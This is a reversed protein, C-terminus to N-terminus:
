YIFDTCTQVEQKRKPDLFSLDLETPGISRQGSYTEARRPLLINGGSKVSASEQIPPELGRVELIDELSAIGNTQTSDDVKNSGVRNITLTGNSSIGRSIPSHMPRIRHRQISAPTATQSSSRLSGPYIEAKFGPLRPPPLPTGSYPTSYIADGPTGYIREFTPTAILLKRSGRVTSTRYIEDEDKIRRACCCCFRALFLTLLIALILLVIILALFLGVIPTWTEARQIESKRANNYNSLLYQLAIIDESPKNKIALKHLKILDKADLSTYSDGGHYTVLQKKDKIYIILLGNDCHVNGLQADYYIKKATENLPEGSDAVKTSNTVHLVGIYRNNGNPRKCGSDCDCKVKQQLDNLLSILKQQTQFTLTDNADCLLLTSGFGDAKCITYDDWINTAIVNAKLEQLLDM